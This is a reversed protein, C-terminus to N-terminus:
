VNIETGVFPTVTTNCLQHKLFYLRRMINAKTKDMAYVPMM